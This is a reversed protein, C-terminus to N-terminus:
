NENSDWKEQQSKPYKFLNIKGIKDAIIGRKKKLHQIFSYISVETNSDDLNKQIKEASKILEDYESMKFKDSTKKQYSESIYKEEINM